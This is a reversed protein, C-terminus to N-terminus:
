VCWNNNYIKNECKVWRTVMTLVHLIKNDFNVRKIVKELHWRAFDCFIFFLVVHKKYYLKAPPFILFLWLFVFLRSCSCYCPLNDYNNNAAANVHQFSMLFVSISITLTFRRPYCLRLHCLFIDFVVITPGSSVFHIRVVTTVVLEACGISFL